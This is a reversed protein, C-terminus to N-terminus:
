FLIGINLQMYNTIGRERVANFPDSLSSGVQNKLMNTLGNNFVLSGVLATNGSLSYEVGAGVQMSGRFVNVYSDSNSDKNTITEDPKANSVSSFETNASYRFGAGLGFLGFYRLYGIEKTRFKLMVPLEIFRTKYLQNWEVINGISDKLTGKLRGSTYNIDIGTSILFTENLQIEAMPGWLIGMRGGGGEFSFDKPVDRFDPKIWCFMPAAKMGFRFNRQANSANLGLVILSLILLLRKM